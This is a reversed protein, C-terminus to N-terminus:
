FTGKKFREHHFPLWKIKELAQTMISFMCVTFGADLLAFAENVMINEFVHYKLPVLLHKDHLLPNLIIKHM